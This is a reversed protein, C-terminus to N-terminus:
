GEKEALVYKVAEWLCTTLEKHMNLSVYEQSFQSEITVEWKGGETDKCIDVGFETGECYNDLIEIMKGITIGEALVRDASEEGYRDKSMYYGTKNGNSFYSLMSISKVEKVQETTIHQKM